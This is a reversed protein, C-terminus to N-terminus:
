MRAPVTARYSVTAAYLGWTLGLLLYFHRWHHTDIQIGQLMTMMLPCAVAIAHHQWPTRTFVVRWAAAITAIVLLLYAFGGIWGGSAFANLYVNHPDQGFLKAFQLPGFGNPAALLGALGRMQTGFRGFEGADYVNLLNAREDFFERIHEFSLAYALLGLLMIAGAIALMSIRFRAGPAVAFTLGILLMMAGLCNLWAGRSYAFFIAALIVLFAASAIVPRRSTGLLLGQSLFVAPPILFTALVNPDKFTGQARAIPAWAEGLGAINFYGALGTVAAAVGALIYAGRVIEIRRLPDRAICFAFFLAGLGMYTSTLFYQTTKPLHLVTLFSALAGLLYLLLFVVLPAMAAHASLGAPLFVILTLLFLLEYPAPEVIVFWSSAILLFLMAHQLHRLPLIGAAHSPPQSVLSM